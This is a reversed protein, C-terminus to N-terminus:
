WEPLQTIQPPAPPPHCGPPFKTPNSFATIGSRGVFPGTFIPGGCRGGTPRVDSTSTFAFGSVLDVSSPPLVITNRFSEAPSPTGRSVNPLSLRTDTSVCRLPVTVRDNAPNVEVAEFRASAELPETELAPDRPTLAPTDM